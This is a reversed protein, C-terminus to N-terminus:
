NETIEDLLRALFGECTALQELTIFENPKHAQLASGPGCVVSPIGISQFLGAETGFSVKGAQQSGTLKLAFDTAERNAKADLGAMFSLEEWDIGAGPFVTRMEPVLHHDAFAKIEAILEDPDQEPLTRIEFDFWCDRPVINCASGGSVVGTQITTWPPDFDADLPGSDRLEAGMNKLKVILEAAVEIANVGRHALASHGELGRVRCRLAYRGKHGSVVKMSTPEGIIGLHPKVEMPALDAIMRRVGICGIEEDYSFALHLPLKPGRRFYEPILALCCGLFGKMDAAGRGILRDDRLVARFPDSDWPQGDVPVVDTHGSLMVGGEKGRPGLIAYLNAKNHDDNYTLRIEAGFPELQARLFDILGLNSNRSTTDFAILREILSLTEPRISASM